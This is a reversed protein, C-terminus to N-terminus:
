LALSQLAGLLGREDGLTATQINPIDPLWPTLTKIDQRLKEISFRGAAVIAGGLVIVDPSWLAVVNVLGQALRHSAEKWVAPDNLDTPELGFRRKLSAGGAYYELTHGETDIVQQGPEFGFSTEDVRGHTIRVGGVGTSITLYAVIDYGKGAGQAAEGLGALVADNHLTVTCTFQQELVEKIPQRQWGPLNPSSVLQTKDRDWVGAIGGALNTITEGAALEGALKTLLRIGENADKPTAITEHAAVTKGDQSVGARLHTGGIDFVLYM